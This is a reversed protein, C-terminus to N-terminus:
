KKCINELFQGVAPILFKNKKLEKVDGCSVQIDATDPLLLIRGDPATNNLIVWVHPFKTDSSDLGVAFYGRDDIHNSLIPGVGAGLHRKSLEIEQLFSHADKTDLEGFGKKAYWYYVISAISLSSLFIVFLFLFKNSNPKRDQNM